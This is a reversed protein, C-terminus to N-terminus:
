KAPQVQTRQASVLRWDRGRRVYVDTFVNRDLTAGDSGVLSALGTAVATEGFFRLRLDSLVAKVGPPAAPRDRLWKVQDAKTWMQGSPMPRLFTEDAHAEVWDADAGAHWEAVLSAIAADEPTSGFAAGSAFVPFLVAAALVQRRKILM